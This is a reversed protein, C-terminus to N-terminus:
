EDVDDSRVAIWGHNKMCNKYTYVHFSRKYELETGKSRAKEAHMRCVEISKDLPLENGGTIPYHDWKDISSLCASLFVASFAILIHKM